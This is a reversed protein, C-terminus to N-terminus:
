KIRHVKSRDFRDVVQAFEAPYGISIISFPVLPDKVGVVERILNMREKTPYIGLWVSGLGLETAELLVNQTAASLDQPWRLPSKLKHTNGLMIFSLPAEELMKGYDLGQALKKMRGRDELVIIEWPQQNVASPAQMAARLLLDIKEEEVPRDEYRRVSRRTFIPDKAQEKTLLIKELRRNGVVKEKRYLRERTELNELIIKQDKKEEEFEGSLYWVEMGWPLFDYNDVEAGVFNVQHALKTDRILYLDGASPIEELRLRVEKELEDPTKEAEQAWLGMLMVSKKM